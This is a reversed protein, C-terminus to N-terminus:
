RLDPSAGLAPERARPPAGVRSDRAAAATPRRPGSAAAVKAERARSALAATDAADGLPTDAATAASPSCRGGTACPGSPSTEAAWGPSAPDGARAAAVLLEIDKVDLGRRSRVLAAWCLGSPSTSFLLLGYRQYEWAV